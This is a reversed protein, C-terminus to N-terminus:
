LVRGEDAFTYAARLADWQYSYTKELRAAPNQDVKGDVLPRMTVRWGGKFGYLLAWGAIGEITVAGRM